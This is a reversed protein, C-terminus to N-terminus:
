LSGFGSNYSSLLSIPIKEHNNIKSLSVQNKQLDIEMFEFLDFFVQNVMEKIKIRPFGCM